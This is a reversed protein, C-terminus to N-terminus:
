AKRRRRVFYLGVLGMGILGFTAPEPVDGVRLLSADDILGGYNDATGLGAFTFDITQSSLLTFTHKLLSWDASSVGVPATGSAFIVQDNNMYLGVDWTDAPLTQDQNLPRPRYYFSVEYIGPGLSKTQTMSSNSDGAGPSTEETDLEVRRTGTHSMVGPMTRTFNTQVEIGKPSPLGGLTAEILSGSNWGPIAAFVDWGEYSNELAPPVQSYGNVMGHGLSDNGNEFSGNTFLNAQAAFSVLLLGALLTLTKRM